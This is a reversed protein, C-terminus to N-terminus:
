VKPSWIAWLLDSRDVKPGLTLIMYVGPAGISGLMCARYPGTDGKFSGKLPFRPSGM